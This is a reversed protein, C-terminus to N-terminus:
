VGAPPAAPLAMLKDALAARDERMAGGRARLAMALVRPLDLAAGRSAHLLYHRQYDPPVRLSWNADSVTGPQNYPEKMGFLDAFFISVHAAGSAFLDAFKARALLMPDRSFARALSAVQDEQPALREALYAAQAELAGETRWRDLVQWLSPTDHTSVMMWDAAVAHESRYVDLPDRLNAKQTVRFRGLGHRELSARVPLPLTSLVEFALDAKERGRARATSVLSDVLLAYQEVQTPSLSTVWADAHRPLALDQAM